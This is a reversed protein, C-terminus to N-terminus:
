EEGASEISEVFRSIFPYMAHKGRRQNLAVNLSVSFGLAMGCLLILEFFSGSNIPWDGHRPDLFFLAVVVIVSIISSSCFVVVFWAMAIKAHRARVSSKKSSSRLYIWAPYLM